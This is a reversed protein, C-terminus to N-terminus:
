DVPTRLGHMLGQWGDHCINKSAELVHTNMFPKEGPARASLLTPIWIWRGVLMQARLRMVDKADMQRRRPGARRCTGRRRHFGSRICKRSAHSTRGYLRLDVFSARRRPPECAEKRHQEGRSPVQLWTALASDGARQWLRSLARFQQMLFLRIVPSNYM